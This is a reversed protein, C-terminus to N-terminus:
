TTGLVLAIFICQGNKITGLFLVAFLGAKKDAELKSSGILM